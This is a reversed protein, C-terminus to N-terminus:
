PRSFGSINGGIDSISDYLIQLAYKSNHAYAGPDHFIYNYNYAARLLRPTWSVFRNMYTAEEPEIAGNGNTDIFFYPYIHPDYAIPTSTVDKSYKQIAELLASHIYEIEYFIGEQNNENGDFDTTNVRIDEPESGNITHCESCTEFQLELTHKDHCRTCSFFEDGRDFRGTYIKGDYEYGGQVETGFPTAASISHSNIFELEESTTDDNELGLKAIADNVIPTSALGQHCQICRAEPGLRRIKVGSPFEASNLDLSVENHCVYCTITTGVKAPNDVVGVTSGDAGIFSIFGPRSHCKACEVPIEPPEDEDWHTFAESTDDSHGSIAWLDEYLVPEPSSAEPCIVEPCQTPAEPSGCAAMLIAVGLLIFTNSKYSKKSSTRQAVM